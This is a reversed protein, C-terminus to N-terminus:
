KGGGIDNSINYIVMSLEDYGQCKNFDKVRVALTDFDKKREKNLASFYKDTTYKDRYTKNITALNRYSEGIRAIEAADIIKDKAAEVQIDTLEVSAQYIENIANKVDEPAKSVDIKEKKGCSSLLVTVLVFIFISSIKKMHNANKIIM